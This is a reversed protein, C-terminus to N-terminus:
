LGFGSRSQASCSSVLDQAHHDKTSYWIDFCGRGVMCYVMCHLKMSKLAKLLISNHDLDLHMMFQFTVKNYLAAKTLSFASM